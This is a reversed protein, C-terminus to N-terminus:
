LLSNQRELWRRARGSQSCTTATTSSSTTPLFPKPPPQEFQIRLRQQQERQIREDEQRAKLERLTNIRSSTRM